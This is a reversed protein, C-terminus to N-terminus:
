INSVFKITLATGINVGCSNGGAVTFTLTAEGNGHAAAYAGIDLIGDNSFGALTGGSYSWTLGEVAVNLVDNLNISAPLKEKCYTVTKSSSVKIKDTVKLYLVGDGGPGCGPVLHYTYKHTGPTLKSVDISDKGPNLQAGTQWQINLGTYKALSFKKTFSGQCLQATYDQAAIPDQIIVVVYGSDPLYGPGPGVLCPLEGADARWMYHYGVSSSMKDTLVNIDNELTSPSTPTSGNLGRDYWRAKPSNADGLWPKVLPFQSTILPYDIQPDNYFYYVDKGGVIDLRCSVVTDSGWNEKGYHQVSGNEPLLVLSDRVTMPNDNCDKYAFTFTKYWMKKAPDSELPNFVSWTGAGITAPSYTGTLGDHGADFYHGPSVTKLGATDQPCISYAQSPLQVIEDTVKVTLSFAGKGGCTYGPRGTVLLTDKVTLIDVVDIPVSPMPQTSKWAVTVKAKTYLDM